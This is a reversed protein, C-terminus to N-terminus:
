KALEKIVNNIIKHGAQGKLTMISEPHFQVGAIPLQKHRFAMIVPFPDISASFFETRALIELDKPFNEEELYLSHYRGVEFPTEIETLISSQTHLVKTEKGHVPLPLQGLKAGFYQGLGQHGLCVGFIPLQRSILKTILQSMGFQEPTGPGPSFLVLDPM